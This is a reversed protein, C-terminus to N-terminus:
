FDHIKMVFHHHIWPPFRAKSVQIEVHSQLFAHFMISFFVRFWVRRVRALEGGRRRRLARGGHGVAGGAAAGAPVRGRPGAAGM